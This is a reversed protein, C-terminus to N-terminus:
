LSDAATPQAGTLLAFDPASVLHTGQVFWAWPGDIDRGVFAELRQRLASTLRIPADLYRVGTVRFRWPYLDPSDLGPAPEREPASAVTAEAVVGVGSEYFCLRDGPQLVGRTGTREGFAYWGADLLLRLSAQASRRPTDTIPTLIWHLPAGGASGTTSEGAGQGPAVAGADDEADVAAPPPDFKLYNMDCRRIGISHEIFLDLLREGDILTIPAAGAEFAAETMGKSFGGTTIITGRVAQWRHLSGRLQDLVPRSLNGKHRKVQVVERVWSIGLQIEGVVDVGKDNSPATVEVDTYEMKQLLERVLIEFDYPHMSAVYEALQARATRSLENTLALLAPPHGGDEDGGSRGLYSLGAETVAYSQSARSILERDLLNTLRDFLASAVSSDSRWTTREHCWELFADVLAGRRCPGREAVLGLVVLLGEQRDIEAWVGPEALCFAHGRETRRLVGAADTELLGHRRALIAPGDVYRPNVLGSTRSWIREALEAEVGTLRLPIWREPERWDVTAQPSGRQELLSDFMARFDAQPAGDLAELLAAAQRYTPFYPTLAGRGTESSM